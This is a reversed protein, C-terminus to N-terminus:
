INMELEAMKKTYTELMKKAQANSSFCNWISVIILGLTGLFLIWGFANVKGNSYFLHQM